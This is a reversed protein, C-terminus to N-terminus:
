KASEAIILDRAYLDRNSAQFEAKLRIPLTSIDVLTWEELRLADGPKGNHQLGLLLHLGDDNVKNTDKRASYYFTRLSSERNAATHLKPDLYIITGDPATIQLDPYGSRQTRGDSTKPLACVWGPLANIREMLESEIHRSAENIRGGSRIPSDHENMVALCADFVSTLTNLLEGHRDPNFELAQRGTTAELIRAFPINELDREDDLLWPILREIDGEGRVAGDLEDAPVSSAALWLFLSCVQAVSQWNRM